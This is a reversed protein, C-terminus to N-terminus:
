RDALRHALKRWAADIARDDPTSRPTRALLTVFYAAIALVFGLAVHVLLTLAVLVVGAALTASVRPPFLGPAVAVFGDGALRGDAVALAPPLAPVRPAVDAFCAPCLGVGRERAAACVPLTEDESATEAAWARVAPEGGAEAARDI